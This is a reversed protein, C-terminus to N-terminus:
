EGPRLNFTILELLKQVEATSKVYYEAKSRHNHGVRITIAKLTLLCEFADEDTRDDGIYVVLPKDELELMELMKLVARGKGWPVNPRVEVVKKGSTMKFRGNYSHVTEEIINKTLPISTGSLNRYHASLTLHKNEITVGRFDRLTNKLRSSLQVLAPILRKAEPHIWQIRSLVIQFGHNAIYFINKLRVMKKIDQLSRGTVVGLFVHHEEAIDRLLERKKSSLTAADPTKRIPVLTGDYDLLL